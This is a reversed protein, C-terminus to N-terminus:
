ESWTEKFLKKRGAFSRTFYGIILMIVTGILFEFIAVQRPFHEGLLLVLNDGDKFSTRIFLGYVRKWVPTIFCITLNIIQLMIFVWAAQKFREMFIGKVRWRVMFFYIIFTFIFAVAGVGLLVNLFSRLQLMAQKDEKSFIDTPKYGNSEVLSLETSKGQLYKSIATKVSETDTAISSHQLINSSNLSYEYVDPLRMVLNAVLCFIMLPLSVVVIAAM